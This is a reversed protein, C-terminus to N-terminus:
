VTCSTFQPLNFWLIHISMIRYQCINVLAPCSYQRDPFCSLRWEPVIHDDESYLIPITGEPDHMWAEHLSGPLPFSPPQRREMVWCSGDPRRIISMRRTAGRRSNLSQEDRSLNQENFVEWRPCLRLMSPRNKERRKGVRLKSEDSVSDPLRWTNLSPLHSTKRGTHASALSLPWGLRQLDALWCAEKAKM